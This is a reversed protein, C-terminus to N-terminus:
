SAVRTAKGGTLQEWREIAVDVYKPEIEVAYCRRELQEAAIITTGSGSFPDLVTGPWCSIVEAALKTPFVAPHGTGHWSNRNVRYVSDHVKTTDACVSSPRRNRGNPDRMSSGMPDSGPKKAVSKATRKQARNFHFVFEHSPALRGMNHWEGPLGSGQDWVYWGFRRWGEARMWDIWADWYPQWEGDRHVLGLNVLVQTTEHAPLNGFVGRMLGLWDTCDSAETYDRQQAYPPSTFVLDVADPYAVKAADACFLRHEGLAWVDGLKAVPDSPPEPVEDQEVESEAPALEGLLKDLQAAGFEEEGMSGQLERLLGDLSEDWDSAIHRNNATVNAEKEQAEDWDVVRVPFEGGQPTRIVGNRMVAGLARLERVRQHGCVLRGTRRNYTIGSVDGHKELSRRLGQSEDETMKRRPNYPAPALDDLDLDESM